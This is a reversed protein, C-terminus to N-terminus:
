TFNCQTAIAELLVIGQTESKAPFVILDCDKYYDTIEDQSVKGVFTIQEEM